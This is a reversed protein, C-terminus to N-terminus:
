KRALREAADGPVHYGLGPVRFLLGDSVLLGLAKSCTQRAHGHERSLTTISVPCGAELVGVAIQERVLLALRVYARPDDEGLVEVPM